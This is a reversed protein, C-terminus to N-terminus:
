REEDKPGLESSMRRHGHGGSSNIGGYGYDLSGARSHCPSIDSFDSVAGRSSPRSRGFQMTYTSLAEQYQLNQETMQRYMPHNSRFFSLPRHMLLPRSNPPSAHEKEKGNSTGNNNNNSNNNNSNNNSNHYSRWSTKQILGPRTPKTPTPTAATTPDAHGDDSRGGSSSTSSRVSKRVIRNWTDRIAM